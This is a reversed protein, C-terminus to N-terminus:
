LYSTFTSDNEIRLLLRQIHDQSVIDPNDQFIEELRHLVKKKRVPIKISGVLERIKEEGFANIEQESHLKKLENIFGKVDLWGCSRDLIDKIQKRFGQASLTHPVWDETGVRSYIVGVLWGLKAKFDDRLEVKKAELCTVYHDAAKIPISLRLFAVCRESFDMRADENLYFYESENNNLLRQVFAELKSRYAIDLLRGKREIEQKQYKRIEREILLDFPRIAALTIYQAKCEGDRRVLDCTQTLVIFYKYDEKLYHPHVEKLIKRIGATKDLIDGQGLQDFNPKTYTFHPM